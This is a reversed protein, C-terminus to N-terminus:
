VSNDGTKVATPLYLGPPPLFFSAVLAIASLISCFVFPFPQPISTVTPAVVGCGVAFTRAIVSTLGVRNPPVRLELILLITNFWGGVSVIVTFTALYTHLGVTPFFTFVAYSIQGITWVVYFCTTDDFTTLLWQTFIM